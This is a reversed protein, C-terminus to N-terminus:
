KWYLRVFGKKVTIGDKEFAKGERIEGGDHIIFWAIGEYSWYIDLRKFLNDDPLGTQGSERLSKTFAKFQKENFRYVRLLDHLDDAKALRVLFEDKPEKSKARDRLKLLMKHEEETFDPVEYDEYTHCFGIARYNADQEELLTGM